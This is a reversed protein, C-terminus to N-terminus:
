TPVVLGCRLSEPLQEVIASIAIGKNVGLAARAHLGVLEWRNNFVPSGSSGPETNVEYDLWFDHHAKLGGNAMKLVGGLPHQLIFLSHGPEPEIRPKVLALWGRRPAEPFDGVLAEGAPQGLRVIAFDFEESEGKQIDWGAESLSYCKGGALHGDEFQRAGFRFRVSQPSSKFSASPSHKVHHNTMVLDPGILFGTGLAVGEPNEVRCVVWEARTMARRWAHPDSFLDPNNVVLAELDNSALITQAAVMLTKNNAQATRLGKILERIRGSAEAWEIVDYVQSTIPVSQRVFTDRENLKFHLCMRLDDYRPFADIIAKQLREFQDGSLRIHTADTALM